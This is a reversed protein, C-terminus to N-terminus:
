ANKPDKHNLWNTNCDLCVWRKRGDTCPKFAGMLANRYHFCRMCFREGTIKTVQETLECRAQTNTQKHSVSKMRNRTTHNVLLGLQRESEKKM